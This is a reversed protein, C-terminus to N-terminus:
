PTAAEQQRLHMLGRPTIHFDGRCGCTCGDVLKREILRRMKALILRDPANAPFAPRVTVGPWNEWWGHWEEPNRALISLVACDAIDKCQMASRVASM